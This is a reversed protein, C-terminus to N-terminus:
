RFTDLRHSCSRVVLGYGDAAADLRDEVSPRPKGCATEHRGVAVLHLEGPPEEGTLVFRDHQVAAPHGVRLVASLELDLAHFVVEIQVGVTEGVVQGVVRLHFADARSLGTQDGFAETMIEVPDDGVIGSLDGLSCPQRRVGYLLEARLPELRPLGVLRDGPQGGEIERMVLHRAQDFLEAVVHQSQELCIGVDDHALDATEAEFAHVLDGPLHAGGFVVRRTDPGTNEVAHVFRQILAVAPDLELLQDVLGVHQQDHVDEVAPVADLLRKVPENVLLGQDADRVAPPKQDGLWFDARHLLVQCLDEPVASRGVRM